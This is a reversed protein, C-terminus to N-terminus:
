MLYSHLGTFTRYPWFLAAVCTMPINCRNMHHHLGVESQPSLDNQCIQVALATSAPLPYSVSKLLLLM